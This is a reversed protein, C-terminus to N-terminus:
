IKLWGEPVIDEYSTNADQFWQRPAIVTRDPQCDGLYAGWWGFSSNALIAHRCQSMLYLDEFQNTGEIVLYNYPFIERCWAPDDSFVFFQQHIDAYTKELLNVAQRYYDITPLGHYSLHPERLYDGRRVHIFTSNENDKIRKAIQCVNVKLNPNLKFQLEERIVSDINNFYKATQWFGQFYSGTPAEFVGPDYRFVTERYYPGSAQNVLQVKTNFRDLIYDRHSTPSLNVKHFFLEEQRGISVARGFAYQFLQNGLGGQLAVIM